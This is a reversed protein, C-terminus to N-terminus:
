CCSCLWAYEGSIAEPLGDFAQVLMAAMCQVARGEEDREATSEHADEMYETLTELALLVNRRSELDPGSVRRKKASRKTTREESQGNREDATGALLFEFGETHEMMFLLAQSRVASPCGPDFVVGDVAAISDGDM